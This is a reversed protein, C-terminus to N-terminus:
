NWIRSAWFGNARDDHPAPVIEFKMGDSKVIDGAVAGIALAMIVLGLTTGDHVFAKRGLKANTAVRGNITGIMKPM